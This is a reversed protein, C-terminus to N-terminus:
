GRPIEWSTGAGCKMKWASSSMWERPTTIREVASVDMTWTEAPLDDIDAVMLAETEFAKFGHALLRQALDAPQDQSYCKWEFDVQLERFYAIQEQIASEVNDASLESWSIFGGGHGVGTLTYRVLHPLAERRMRMWECERRVEKEFIALM